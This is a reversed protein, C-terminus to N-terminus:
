YNTNKRTWDSVLRATKIGQEAAEDLLAEREELTWDTTANQVLLYGHALQNRIKTFDAIEKNLARLERKTLNLHQGYKNIAKSFNQHAVGLAGTTYHEDEEYMLHQAFAELRDAVIMDCLTVVEFKCGAEQAATIREWASKYLQYRLANQPSNDIGLARVHKHEKHEKNGVAM